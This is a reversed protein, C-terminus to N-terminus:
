PALIAKEFTGPAMISYRGCLCRVWGLASGFRLMELQFFLSIKVNGRLQKLTLIGWRRLEGLDLSAWRWVRGSGFEGFDM